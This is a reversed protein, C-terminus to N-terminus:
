PRTFVAKGGQSHAFAQAQQHSAIGAQPSYYISTIGNQGIEQPDFGDILDYRLEVGTAVILYDYNVLLGNETVVQNREPRYEIVSDEVWRVSADIFRENPSIVDSVQTYAGALLLTQGPQYWHFGRPEIVTITAGDLYHGLQNAIGIGAAGGGVIVINAQTKTKNIQRYGVGVAGVAGVGVGAKLFTRRSIAM